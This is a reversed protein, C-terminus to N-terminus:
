MNEYKIIHGSTSKRDKPDGTFDLDTYTNVKGKCRKKYHKTGNLYKLMQIVNKWDAQTPNESKKYHL